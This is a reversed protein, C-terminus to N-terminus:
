CDIVIKIKQTILFPNNEKWPEFNCGKERNDINVALYKKM